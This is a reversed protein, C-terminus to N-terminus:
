RSRLSPYRYGRQHDATTGDVDYDGYILVKEKREVAAELRDLASKMGSMQLPDHLHALEPVLFRRAAEPEDIGRRVLLDTLVPLAAPAIKLGCDALAAALVRTKLSDTPKSIWRM